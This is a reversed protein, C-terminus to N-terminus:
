GGFTDKVWFAKAVLVAQGQVELLASMGTPM